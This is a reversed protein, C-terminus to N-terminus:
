ASLPRRRLQTEGSRRRSMTYSRSLDDVGYVNDDDDRSLVDGEGLYMIVISSQVLFSHKGTARLLTRRGGPELSSGLRKARGRLTATHHRAGPRTAVTGRRKGEVAVPRGVHHTYTTTTMRRPVLVPQSCTTPQPRTLSFFIRRTVTSAEDGAASPDRRAEVGNAPAATRTPLGTYARLPGGYRERAREQVPEGAPDETHQRSITDLVCLSRIPLGHLQEDGHGELQTALVSIAQVPTLHKPRIMCGLLGEVLRGQSHVGQLQWMLSLFSSQVVAHSTSGQSRFGGCRQQQSLVAWSLCPHLMRSIEPISTSHPQYGRAKGGGGCIGFSGRAAM